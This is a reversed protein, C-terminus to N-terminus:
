TLEQFDYCGHCVYRLPDRLILSHQHYSAGYICPGDDSYVQSPRSQSQSQSQPTPETFPPPPEVPMLVKARKCRGFLETISPLPLKSRAPVLCDAGAQFIDDDSESDSDSGTYDDESDSSRHSNGLSYSDGDEFLLSLRSRGTSPRFLTLPRGHDISEMRIPMRKNSKSLLAACFGIVVTTLLYIFFSSICSPAGKVAKNASWGQM